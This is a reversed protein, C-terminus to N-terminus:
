LRTSLIYHKLKEQADPQREPQFPNAAHRAPTSRCWKVLPLCLLFRFVLIHITLLVLMSSVNTPPSRETERTRSFAREVENYRQRAVIKKLPTKKMSPLFFVQIDLKKSSKDDNRNLAM